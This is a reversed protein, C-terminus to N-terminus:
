QKCNNYMEFNRSDIAAMIGFAAATGAQRYIDDAVDGAVFFNPISTGTRMKINTNNNTINTDIIRNGLEHSGILKLNKSLYESNYVLDLNATHGIAYFVGTVKLSTKIETKQNYISVEDLGNEENGMFGSIQSNMLWTIKPEQQKNKNENENKEEWAWKRKIKEQTAVCARLQDGRNIVYIHKVYNALYDIFGMATDGGGVIVIDKNRFRPLRADCEACSSIGRCWYDSEGPVALLRKPKAGTAFIIQKSFTKTLTPLAPAKTKTTTTTTENDSDSDDDEFMQLQQRPESYIIFYKILPSSLTSSESKEPQVDIKMVKESKIVCGQNQANNRMNFMLSKGDILSIGPFNEIHSTEILQGGIESVRNGEFLIHSRRQSAVYKGAEYAAPGGGIIVVDYIVNEIM